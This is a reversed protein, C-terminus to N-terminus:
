NKEFSLLLLSRDKVSSLWGCGFWKCSFLLKIRYVFDAQFTEELVELLSEFRIWCNNWKGFKKHFHAFFRSEIKFDRFYIWTVWTNLNPQYFLILESQFVATSFFSTAECRDIEFTNRKRTRPTIKAFVERFFRSTLLSEGCKKSKLRQELIANVKKVKLGKLQLIYSEFIVSVYVFHITLFARTELFNRNERFFSSFM